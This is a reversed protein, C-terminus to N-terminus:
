HTVRAAFVTHSETEHVAFGFRRMIADFQSAQRTAGHFEVAITKVAELWTVDGRFLEVEAGEIDVKLLDVSDFGSEALLSPMSRGTIRERPDAAARAAMVQFSDFQDPGAPTHGLLETDTAWVAANVARCRGNAILPQLNSELLAFNASNPEVAFLHCAPFSAAFYLSALGINAGLDIVSRASGCLSLAGSYVKRRVIEDLTQSDTGRTRLTVTERMPNRLKLQIQECSFVGRELEVAQVKLRLVSPLDMHPLWDAIFKVSWPIRLRPKPSSTPYSM